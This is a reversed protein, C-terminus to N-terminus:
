KEDWSNLYLNRTMDTAWSYLQLGGDVPINAGTIYGAWEDSLLFLALSAVNQPSGLHGFPIVAEARVSLADPVPEASTWISGPSITNVRIGKSAIEVALERSLMTVAAKATSYHPRGSVIRDHLSSIFLVSGRLGNAGLARLLGRTFFWPSAFNASQVKRFDEASVSLVSGPTSIGVNNVILEVPGHKDTLREAFREADDSRFDYLENRTRKGFVRILEDYNSDIAVVEVGASLLAEVIEKGIGHAAGTVVAKRGALDPPKPFPGRVSNM